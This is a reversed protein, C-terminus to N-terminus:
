DKGFRCKALHKEHPTGGVDTSPIVRYRHGAPAGGNTTSKREPEKPTGAEAWAGIAALGSLALIAFTISHSHTM